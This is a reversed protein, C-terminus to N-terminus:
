DLKEFGIEHYNTGTCSLTKREGYKNTFPLTMENLAHFDNLSHLKSDFGTLIDRVYEPHCYYQIAERWCHILATWQDSNEESMEYNATLENLDSDQFNATFTYEIAM